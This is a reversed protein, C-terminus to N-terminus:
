YDTFRYEGRSGAPNCCGREGGEKLLARPEKRVACGKEEELEEEPFPDVLFPIRRLPPFPDDNRRTGYGLPPHFISVRPVGKPLSIRTITGPYRWDLVESPFEKRERGKKEENESLLTLSFYRDGSRITVRESGEKTRDFFNPFKDIRGGIRAM